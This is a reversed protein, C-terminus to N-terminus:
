IVGKQQQLVKLYLKERVDERCTNIFDMAQDAYMEVTELEHAERCCQFWSVCRSPLNTVVKRYISDTNSEFVYNIFLTGMIFPVGSGVIKEPLSYKAYTELGRKLEALSLIVGTALNSSSKMVSPIYGLCSWIKGGINTCCSSNDDDSLSQNAQIDKDNSENTPKDELLRMVINQGHVHYITNTAKIFSAAQITAIPLAAWYASTPDMGFATFSSQFTNQLLSYMTTWGVGLFGYIIAEVQQKRCLTHPNRIEGIYQRKVYSVWKSNGLDCADQHVLFLHSFRFVTNDYSDSFPMRVINISLHSSEDQQPMDLNVSARNTAEIKAANLISQFCGRDESKDKVVEYIDHCFQKDGRAKTKFKRISDLLIERTDAAEPSSPITTLNNKAVKYFMLAYSFYFLPMTVFGITSFDREEISWLMQWLSPFAYAGSSLVLLGLSLYYGGGQQDILRTYKSLDNKEDIIYYKGVFALRLAHEDQAAKIIDAGVEENSSIKDQGKPSGQACLKIHLELFIPHLFDIGDKFLEDWVNAVVITSKIAIYAALLTAAQTDAVAGVWDGVLIMVEATAPMSFLFGCGTAVLVRTGQFITTPWTNTNTPFFDRDIVNFEIDHPILDIPSIQFKEDKEQIKTAHPILCYQQSPSNQYSPSYYRNNPSYKTLKDAKKGGEVYFPVDESDTRPSLEVAINNGHYSTDSNQFNRKTCDTSIDTTATTSTPDQTYISPIDDDYSLKKQDLFNEMGHGDVLSILLFALFIFFARM